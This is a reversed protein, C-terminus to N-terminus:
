CWARRCLVYPAQLRTLQTSSFQRLSIYWHASREPEAEKAFQAIITSSLKPPGRPISVPASQTRVRESYDEFKARFMLLRVMHGILANMDVAQLLYEVNDTVATFQYLFDLCAGRLQEDDILLWDSIHQLASAPINELRNTTEYNLGIRALAQLATVITGRDDSEFQAVLAIYLPDSSSLVFFQMLQEAIELAYNKIEITIPIKPLQLVIAIVDKMVARRSLYDANELLMVMNRLILAAENIRELKHSFEQPYLDDQFSQSPTLKSLKDLLNATGNIGDLQHPGLFGSTNLYSVEWQPADYFLPTIELVKDILAETLNPFDALRFKDGRENSIKVLHHLAWEQETAVGSRLALLARQYIGPGGYGMGPPLTGRQIIGSDINARKAIIRDRLQRFYQANNAPTPVNRVASPLQPKPVAGLVSIKGNQMGSVGNM